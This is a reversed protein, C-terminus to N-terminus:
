DQLNLQWTVGFRDRVMAYGPSWFTKQLEMLAQGGDILSAYVAKIRPEEEFVVAISLQDGLTVSSGPFTDSFYLLNGEIELEAHLVRNRAEEPLPHEPNPADGYHMVGRNTGAFVKQYFEIAEAANGDLTIYPILKM